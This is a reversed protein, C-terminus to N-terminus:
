QKVNPCNWLTQLFNQSTEDWLNTFENKKREVKCSCYFFLLRLTLAHLSCIKHIYVRRQTQRHVNVLCSCAYSVLHKSTIATTRGQIITSRSSRQSTQQVLEPYEVAAITASPFITYRITSSWSEGFSRPSLEWIRSFFLLERSPINISEALNKCLVSLEWRCCQSCSYSEISDFCEFFLM